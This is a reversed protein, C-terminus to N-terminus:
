SVNPRRGAGLRAPSSFLAWCMFKGDEAIFAEAM